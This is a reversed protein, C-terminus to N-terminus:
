CLSLTRRDLKTKGKEWNVITMENVAIKKALDVEGKGGAMFYLHTQSLSALGMKTVVTTAINKNISM